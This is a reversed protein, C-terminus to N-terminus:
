NQFCGYISVATMEGKELRAPSLRWFAVTAGSLDLNQRVALPVPHFPPGVQFIMGHNFM